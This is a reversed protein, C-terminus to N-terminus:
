LRNIDSLDFEPIARLAYVLVTTSLITSVLAGVSVALWSVGRMCMIDATEVSVVSLGGTVVGLAIGCIIGLVTLAASDHWIYGKAKQTSYGCIMLVVLERRKEAIFMVDLNLLVVFAMVSALALYVLVVINALKSFEGFEAEQRGREDVCARFGKEDKTVDRIQHVDKGGSDALLCNPEMETNFTQEYLERGMVIEFGKLHHEFFGTIPLYHTNGAADALEIKDGVQAGMHEAYAQSVVVGSDDLTGNAIRLTHFTNRYSEEDKPVTVFATSKTSDPLELTYVSRMVPTSKVDTKALADGMSRATDNGPAIYVVTDYHYLEEYQHTPSTVVQRTLTVATVVLATCGAVGIVTSLVRRSDNICNNVTTQALLSMRKWLGWKEYFRRKASPHAEGALLDVAQRALVGHVALWTSIMILAAEFIALLILDGPVFNFTADVVFYSNLTRLIIAEVAIISVPIALLVGIAVAAAAYLMFHRTVEFRNFGMAKKAGIQVTQEYVIRSMASYCVFLGVVLFLSAMSWRLRGMVGAYSELLDVSANYRRQMIIWATQSLADVDERAKKLDARKEELKAEGDAIEARADDLKTAQEELQEALVSRQPESMHDLAAVSDDYSQQAEELDARAQSLSSEAEDYAKQGEELADEAKTRLEVYRTAALTDGLSDVRDDLEKSRVRYEDDFSSLDELDKSRLTVYPKADNFFAPDFADEVLWCVGNVRGDGLDSAGYTADDSGLYSPSTVFASIKFSRRTLGNSSGDEQKALKITDGIKLGSESAWTREVAVHASDSPLKGQQTMFTDISKPLTHFKLVFTEDDSELQGYAVYGAEVEDVGEIDALKNLDDDTLGYPYTIEIDHAHGMALANDAMAHLSGSLWHIGLFVGVGLTVFMFISFFSVLTGKITTLLDIRQTLKM